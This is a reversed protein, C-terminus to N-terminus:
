ERRSIHVRMVFFIELSVLSVVLCRLSSLMARFDVCFLKLLCPARYRSLGTLSYLRKMTMKLVQFFLKLSCMRSDVRLRLVPKMVQLTIMPVPLLPAQLLRKPLSLFPVITLMPPFLLTEHDGRSLPQSIAL